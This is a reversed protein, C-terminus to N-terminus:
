VIAIVDNKGNMCTNIRQYNAPLMKQKELAKVM